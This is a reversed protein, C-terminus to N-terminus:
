SSQYPTAVALLPLKKYATVSTAESMDLDSPTAVGHLQWDFKHLLKALALEDTSMAFQIGPCVRRGSGFPILEFNHGKIDISSNLFRDPVFEEAGDWLRPDRGIAYANVFVQTGAAINYGKVKVDQNAVRPILLPFPPHLRLAEKIVAKLYPIKGLDDETIEIKNKAMDRIETQLKKMVEPHMLLEAMVWELATKTTDTGAGMIDQLIAKINIKDIPFGAMNEKQIWLLVDVFDKSTSEGKWNENAVHEDLVGEFFVDFKKAIKEAKSYLGNARSLWNFCPIFESADFFGFIEGSQRLLDKYSQGGVVEGFKRGLAVRCVINETTYALIESLNVPKSSSCFSKIKDIMVNTEQERVHRYSQVRKNSLLHLIAISKIQRWYEGYSSVAIGKQDYGLIKLLKAKPRDSFNIDHTKMIERAMEASSIVLAPVSGLHVLMIPGYTEALKRLSHHPYLGLQHLNGIIPFKPPSPPVLGSKNSRFSSWKLLLVLFSLALVLSIIPISLYSSTVHELFLSLSLM